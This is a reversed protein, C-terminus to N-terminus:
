AASRRPIALDVIFHNRARGVPACPLMCGNMAYMVLANEAGERTEFLWVRFIKCKTVLAYQGDGFVYLRKKWSWRARAVEEWNVIEGRDEEELPEAV